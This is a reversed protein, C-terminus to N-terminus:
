YINLPQVEMGADTDLRTKESNEKKKKKSLERLGFYDGGCTCARM